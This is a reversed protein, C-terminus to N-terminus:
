LECVGSQMTNTFLSLTKNSIYRLMSKTVNTQNFFASVFAVGINSDKFNFEQV